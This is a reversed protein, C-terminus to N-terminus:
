LMISYFLQLAMNRALPALFDKKRKRIFSLSLPLMQKEIDMWGSM